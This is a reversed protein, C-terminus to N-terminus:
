LSELMDKVDVIVGEAERPYGSKKIRSGHFAQSVKIKCIPYIKVHQTNPNGCKACVSLVREVDPTQYKIAGSKKGRNRISNSM